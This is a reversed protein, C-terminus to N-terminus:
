CIPQSERIPVPSLCHKPTKDKLWGSLFNERLVSIPRKFITFEKCWSKCLDGQEIGEQAGIAIAVCTSKIRHPGSAQESTLVAAL